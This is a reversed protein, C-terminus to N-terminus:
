NQLSELCWKKYDSAIQCIPTAILEVVEYPHHQKIFTELEPFKEQSTKILLLLEKEEVVEGQWTYISQINPVINVCAALKAAVLKHAFENIDGDIPFTCHVLLLNTSM